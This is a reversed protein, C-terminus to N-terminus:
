KSGGRLAEQCIRYLLDEPRFLRNDLDPFIGKRIRDAFLMVQPVSLDNETVLRSDSFIKDVTDLAQLRGQKLVMIRDALRALDDMSHSVFIISVGKAQLAKLTTFIEDRGQPDLGAAPEDLILIEPKMALIGAIAVRRMQGGSLEFPSRDTEIDQLGVM